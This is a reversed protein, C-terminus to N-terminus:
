SAGEQAEKRYEDRHDAIDSAYQEWSKISQVRGKTYGAKHALKWAEQTAALKSITQSHHVFAYEVIEGPRRVRLEITLGKPCPSASTKRRSTSAFRKLDDSLRQRARAAKSIEKEKKKGFRELERAMESEFQEISITM